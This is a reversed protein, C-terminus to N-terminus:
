AGSVLAERIIPRLRRYIDHAGLMSIAILFPLAYLWFEIRHDIPTDLEMYESISLGTGLVDLGMIVFAIVIAGVVLQTLVILMSMSVCVRLSAKRYVRKVERKDMGDFEPLNVKRWYLRNIGERSVVWWTAVSILGSTVLVVVALAGPRAQAVYVEWGFRMVYILGGTYNYVFPGVLGIVMSRWGLLKISGIVGAMALVAHMLYGYSKEGLIHWRWMEMQEEYGAGEPYPFVLWSVQSLAFMAVYAVVGWFMASLAARAM